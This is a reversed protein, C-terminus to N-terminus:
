WALRRMNSTLDGLYNQMQSNFRRIDCRESEVHQCLASLTSFEAGCGSYGRPCRYMREEHAPSALHQNLAQLSRYEHHCLFCEFASGNWALDTAWTTTSRGSGGEGYAIMRAPNTIVNERDFQAVARNVQDRTVRSPCTGSELHLVLAAASVFMRGCDRGPCPINAAAHAGSRLHNRLNNENQFLRRCDPCYHHSQRNHEHLGLASNFIKRCTACYYHDDEYHEVLEDADDFHEDCHQCYHHRPSAGWHQKLQYFTEFDRDCVNCINHNGSNQEHQELARDHPFYRECRDCYAM